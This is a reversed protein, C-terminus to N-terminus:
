DAGIREAVVILREPTGPRAGLLPWCTVLVLRDGASPPPLAPMAKLEVEAVALRRGATQLRVKQMDVERRGFVKDYDWGFPLNTPM